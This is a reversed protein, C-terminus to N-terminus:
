NNKREKTNNDNANILNDEEIAINNDMKISREHKNNINRLTEGRKKDETYHDEINSNSNCKNINNDSSM